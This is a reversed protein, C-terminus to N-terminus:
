RPDTRLEIDKEAKKEAKREDKDSALRADDPQMDQMAVIVREAVGKDRLYTQQESTLEFYQQTRELRKIMEKESLDAKEMAVVEDLTVFGDGNVDATRAERAQEATAPDSEAKKQAAVAEDRTKDKDQDRKEDLKAGVVYGGGAGLAGGILAGLLRNDKGGIAAGAVAGGVGGIVTGQEKEGGPLSECGALPALAVSGTLVLTTLKAFRM